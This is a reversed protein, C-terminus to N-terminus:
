SNLPTTLSCCRLFGFNLIHVINKNLGERVKIKTLHTVKKKHPTVVKQNQDVCKGLSGIQRQNSLISNLSFKDWFIKKSRSQSTLLCSFSIFLFSLLSMDLSTPPHGGVHTTAKTQADCQETCNNCYFPQLAIKQNFESTHLIKVFRVRDVSTHM